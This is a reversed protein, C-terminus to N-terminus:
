KQTEQSRISDSPAIRNPLGNKDETKKCIRKRSAHLVAELNEKRPRQNSYGSVYYQKPRYMLYM